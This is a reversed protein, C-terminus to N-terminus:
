CLNRGYKFIYCKPSRPMFVTTKKETLEKIKRLYYLSVGCGTGQGNADKMVMACKGYSPLHCQFMAILEFGYKLQIEAAKGCINEKQELTWDLTGCQM